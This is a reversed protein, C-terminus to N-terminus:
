KDSDSENKKNIKYITILPVAYKFYAAGYYLENM